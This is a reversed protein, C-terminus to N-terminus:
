ETTNVTSQSPSQHSIGSYLIKKIRSISNMMEDVSAAASGGDPEDKETTATSPGVAAENGTGNTEGDFKDNNGTEDQCLREFITKWIPKTKSRVTKPFGTVFPCYYRHSAVPDCSSSKHHQQRKTPRRSDGDGEEAMADVEMGEGDKRNQLQLEMFAFCVSCGMCIVPPTEELTPYLDDNSTEELPKWGLVALALIDASSVNEVSRDTATEEDQQALGLLSGAKSKIQQIENPLILSPYMWEQATTTTTTNQNHSLPMLLEKARSQIIQRPTPNDVLDLFDDPVVETMYTPVLSLSSPTDTNTGGDTRDGIDDPVDDYKRFTEISMKFPCTQPVHGDSVIKTRITGVYTESLSLRLNLPVTLASKCGSCVLMDNDVSEWGFRACLLPSLCAVSPKYKYSEFFSLLRLEYQQKQQNKRVLQHTNNDDNGRGQQQQQQQTPQDQVAVDDNSDNGDVRGGGGGGGGGLSNDDLIRRIMMAASVSQSNHEDGTSSDTVPKDTTPHQLTSSM